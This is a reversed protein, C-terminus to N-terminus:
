SVKVALARWSFAKASGSSRGMYADRIGNGLLTLSLTVVAIIGGTPVLMWASIPMVNQADTM